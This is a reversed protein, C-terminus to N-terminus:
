RAELAARIGEATKNEDCLKRFEERTLPEGSSEVELFQETPLWVRAMKDADKPPSMDTGDIFSYGALTARVGIVAWYKARGGALIAIPTMVRVDSGARADGPLGTLWTRGERTLTEWREAAPDTPAMMAPKFGLNQTSILYLGWYLDRVRHLQDRLAIPGSEQPDFAEAQDLIEKGLVQELAGELFDYSRAHRAYVTALPEVEFHPVNLIPASLSSASLESQKVHTERHQVLMTAFAERLRKKYRLTFGVKAREESRDTVLLTELAFLQHTYWGDDPQPALDVSGDRIAKVLDGMLDAEPPLGDPYLAKFLDTEPTSSKGLFPLPENISCSAGEQPLQDALSRVPNTLKGYLSVLQLYHAKRSPDAAIASALACASAASFPMQLLRDQIWIQKLDESWTYFGIPKSHIKAELFDAQLKRTRPELEPPLTVEHGGFHLAAALSIIAEDAADDRHQLLLSLAGQLVISKPALTPELGQQVTKEVGAYITDDLQKLYTTVTQVSPIFGRGTFSSYRPHHELFARHTPFLRAAEQQEAGDEYPAVDFRFRRTSNNLSGYVGRYLLSPDYTPEPPALDDGEEASLPNQLTRIEESEPACGGSFLSLLLSLLPIARSWSAM